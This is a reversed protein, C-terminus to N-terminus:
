GPMFCARVQASCTECSRTLLLFTCGGGGEGNRRRGRESEGEGARKRMFM